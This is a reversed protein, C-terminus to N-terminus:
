PTVRGCHTVGKAGSKLWAFTSRAGSRYVGEFTIVIPSSARAEIGGTTFECIPVQLARDASIAKKKVVSASIADGKQYVEANIQIYPGKISLDTRSWAAALRGGVYGYVHDSTGRLEVTCTSGCSIGWIASSTTGHDRSGIAFGSVDNAAPYDQALGVEATPGPDTAGILMMGITTFSKNNSPGALLIVYSVDFDRTFNGAIYVTAEGHTASTLSAIIYSAIIQM